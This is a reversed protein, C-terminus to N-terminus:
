TEHDSDYIEDITINSKSSNLYNNDSNWFQNRWRGWNEVRKKIWFESFRWDFVIKKQNESTFFLLRFKIQGFTNVISSSTRWVDKTKMRGVFSHKSLINKLRSIKSNIQQMKSILAELRSVSHNSKQIVPEFRWANLSHEVLWGNRLTWNNWIDKIGHM